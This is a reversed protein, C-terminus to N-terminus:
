GKKPVLLKQGKSTMMQQGGRTLFPVEERPAPVAPTYSEANKNICIIESTGKCVKIIPISGRYIM